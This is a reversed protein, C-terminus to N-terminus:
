PQVETTPSHALQEVMDLRSELELTDVHEQAKLQIEYRMMEAEIEYKEAWANAVRNIPGSLNFGLAMLVFGLCGVSACFNRTRPGVYSWMQQKFEDQKKDEAM